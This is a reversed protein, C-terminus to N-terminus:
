DETWHATGGFCVPFRNSSHTINDAFLVARDISQHSVKLNSM